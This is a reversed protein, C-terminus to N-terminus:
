AGGLEGWAARVDAVSVPRKATSARLTALRLTKALGRLGGAKTGVEALVDASAPDTIGWADLMTAVDGRTASTLQLRKGVRSRLRDLTVACDGGTLRAFVERSGLLALGVGAADHIGRLQDLAAPALHQAEDIILLGDRGTVREVIARHLAAAGNRVPIGITACVEELAPVVGATAPTMTAHWANAGTAAYHRATCTKGLGAGGYILAVDATAQAFALAGLIRSATPTEIWAGAPM